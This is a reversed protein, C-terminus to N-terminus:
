DQIKCPPVITYKMAYSTNNASNRLSASTQTKIISIQKQRKAGGGGRAMEGHNRRREERGEESGEEM